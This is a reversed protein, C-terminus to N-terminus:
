FMYTLGLKIQRAPNYYFNNNNLYISYLDRYSDPNVQSNIIAQTSPDTLYGNDEPSGTASYVAITNRINFLNTVTLSVKMQTHKVTGNKRHLDINFVKDAIADFYFAWPLRAGNYSGVIYSETVSLARTYPAGSQAVAMINIGANEFPRVEKKKKEGTEKDKVMRNFRWGNYQAGQGYRFDVNVKFVHRQDEGIPNLMKLTTYGEKILEQMTTSSIGTGEAYQLTYNASVRLNKTSRMNYSFTFGKTTKFDLNDYSYYNQNPDAGAYQVLQILDRTEKYYASLSVAMNDNLAQEFAVEYNTVREPKLNPNYIVTAKTMYMYSLYDAQWGGSPRRAIIDYNAKFQSKLGVPFSFAIRPMPVIQPKYDEFAASSIQNGSANGLTAVEQGGGAGTSRYPTPRGSEGIVSTPSAVEVGDANYWVRGNRYGRITPTTASPDDVYVVWDDKAANAFANGALGTNYPAEGAKLRGVTYSDYLLYPDKLVSQNGDFYDVRVGVNFVLDEFAFKDQIYAGMYTPAFSPIYQFNGHGKGVPDFFDDLSWGSGNYRKGTHDYGYYSVIANNGGGNFLEKSSFMEIGGNQQYWDPSYRDVDLWDTGNVDLGLAERMSASFQTQGGGNLRNYDVYLTGNRVSYIPHSLDLQTIHANANQRMITWLSYAGLSYASSSGYDIQYGIELEHPGLSASAKAGVYVYNSVSQRYGTSQIGVNSFMGYISSPADGNMLGKFALINERSYMLQNIYNTEMNWLQNTYNALIPNYKSPTFSVIKQDYSNLVFASQTTGNYSINNKLDYSPELETVFTGIHGYKFIDDGFNENYNKAFIRNYMANIQFMANKISRKAAPLTADGEAPAADPFRQQFDAQVKFSNQESVGFAARTLNLPFYSISTNPGKTYVLETTLELTSYESFRYVLALNAAGYYRSFDSYRDKNSYYNNATPRKIEVFDGNRLYDGAYEISGKEPDYIIPNQELEKVKADNVVKYRRDSPRYYAFNYYSGEATFRYGLKTMEMVGGEATQTRKVWLPGTLYVTLLHNIMYNFYTEYRVMGFFKPQPPKLTIVQAGGVAEGMSAPTGGLIVQIEAIAEKPVNVGARTRVGGVNTVMGTEGRAAGASGDSNYGVGGVSAVISSVDTGPMREIDESSVRSGTAAGGMDIIPVREEVVEVVDLLTSNTKMVFNEMTYDNAKINVGKKLIPQMGSYSIEIDYKGVDLGSVTYMGDFDTMAGRILNGDRLVKVAAMYLPEGQDDKVSGRLTGQAIAAVQTALLLGIVFLVKRFMSM